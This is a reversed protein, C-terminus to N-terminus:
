DTLIRPVSKELRHVRGQRCLAVLLGLTPLFDVLYVVSESSMTCLVNKM